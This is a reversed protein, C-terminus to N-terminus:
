KKSRDLKKEVDQYLKLAHSHLLATDILIMQKEVEIWNKEEVDLMAQALYVEMLGNKFYPNEKVDIPLKSYGEIYVKIDARHIIDPRGTASNLNMNIRIRGLRAELNDPYRDVVLSYLNRSRFIYEILTQINLEPNAGQSAYANAMLIQIRPNTFDKKWLIKYVVFAKGIYEAATKNGPPLLAGRIYYFNAYYLLTQTDKPNVKKAKDAQAESTFNTKYLDKFYPKSEAASAAYKSTSFNVLFLITVLITMVKSKNVTRYKM